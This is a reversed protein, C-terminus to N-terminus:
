TLVRVAGPVVSVRLPLAGIREGDAYGVIGPCEIRVTRVRRVSVAPHSLHRGSFVRPFVRLFELRTTRRLVLVDLMGDDDLAHPIVKMGGGYAPGNGVAVLMAECQEARGDLTLRYALPRFVALERLAALTYRSTGSPRRMANARENVVADFGAALVGVFWHQRGTDDVTRAADIRRPRWRRLAAVTGSVDRARMGVQDAIDNGTGAACIGLPIDTAAVHTIGLNVTGDGGCVIVAEVDPLAAVLRQGATVADPGSVDVVEHGEAQLAVFLRAGVEAARGKGSTPNVLVAVRRAPPSSM